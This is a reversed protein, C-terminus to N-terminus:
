LTVSRLTPLSTMTILLDEELRSAFSFTSEPLVVTARRRENINNGNIASHRRKREGAGGILESIDCSVESVPLEQLYNKQVNSIDSLLLEGDHSVDERLRFQQLSLKQKFGRNLGLCALCIEGGNWINKISKNDISDCSSYGVATDWSSNNCHDCKTDNKGFIEATMSDPRIMVHVPCNFDNVLSYDTNLVNNDKNCSCTCEKSDAVVDNFTVDDEQCRVKTYINDTALKNDNDDSDNHDTQCAKDNLSVSFKLVFEKINSKKYEQYKKCIGFEDDLYYTSGSDSRKYNPVEFTSPIVFTTGNAYKGLIKNKGTNGEHIPRFHTYESSLLDDEVNDQNQDSQMVTHISIKLSASSNNFVEYGGRNRRPLVEVFSSNEKSHNIKTLSRELLELDDEGDSWRRTTIQLWANNDFNINNEYFLNKDNEDNTDANSWSYNPKATDITISGFSLDLIQEDEAFEKNSDDVTNFNNDLKTTLMDDDEEIATENSWISNAGLNFGCSLYTKKGNDRMNAMNMIDVNDYMNKVPSNLLQRIDVPLDEYMNVNDENENWREEDTSDIQSTMTEKLNSLVRPTIDKETLPGKLKPWNNTPPTTKVNISKFMYLDWDTMSESREMSKAVNRCYGLERKNKSFCTYRQKSASKPKMMQDSDIKCHFKDEYSSSRSQRKARKKPSGPWKPILAIYSSPSPPRTNRILPPFAAYYRKASDQPSLYHQVEKITEEQSESNETKDNQNNIEKLKECLEDVLSEIGCQQFSYFVVLILFIYIM